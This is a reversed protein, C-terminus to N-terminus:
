PARGGAHAAREIARIMRTHAGCRCLHGDLAAVIDARTPAPTGDLLVKARMLIGALCYGCQGAQESIFSEVLSHGVPGASLSEVTEVTRGAVAGVPEMCSTVARGDIIVTCSMCQGESCGARTAKLGLDNRLVYLLPTEPDVAVGVKSGNVNFEITDMANSM